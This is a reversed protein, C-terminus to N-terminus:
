NKLLEIQEEIEMLKELLGESEAEKSQITTTISKHERGLDEMMSLNALVEPESLKQEISTVKQKFSNIEAEKKDIASELNKKEKQAEKLAPNPANNPDVAPKINKQIETPKEDILRKKNWIEWEDYTGPYEKIKEDEIWWIKNAIESLFYRDHSVVVFTGEYSILADILIEVSQMDLHNTPEDLLLFNAESVLTKALAVRAKEGGSLVKIKKFVDEGHFLFCGLVSRLESELKHTASSKLEELIENEIVLSELQHQAYFSEIVNYVNEKEGKFSETGAIMRLVTSKGKGNAGILAIKDGKNIEINTDTVIRQNGYAKSVHKISSLLKGSQQKVKFSLNMGSSEGEVEDILDLKELMKVRSQVATAKSAKARFRSIFKQQEKIYKEQNEFSRQQLEDRMIKQEQFSDYNGTWHYIKQNTIEVIKNVMRNVFYRDHSVVIVTGQYSQLYNELWEISPLDLHNTPEDLMLLMPEQLLMQALIVRMRWGGSFEDLPRELDETKFGLGELVEETKSRVRYGDLREFEEQKEGLENLIAESHDTEMRKLIADIEHQLAIANEFAKMAVDIIKDHSNFSLLDQNLFGITLNKLGSMEGERLEFDGNILRLLTSKGTGNKGVLGIREGPKIHWSANQYLYRGAFEFSFNNLALL